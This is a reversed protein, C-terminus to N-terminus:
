FLGPAFVGFRLSSYIVEDGVPNIGSLNSRLLAQKRKM